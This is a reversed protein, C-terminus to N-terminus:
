LIVGEKLAAEIMEKEEDTCKVDNLHVSKVRTFGSVQGLTVWKFAPYGYQMNYAYADKTMPRRIILFPKRIGMAGANAGLNGSQIVQLKARGANIAAGKFAGFLAGGAGGIAAGGVASSAVSLLSTILATYNGSSLPITVACNGVFQYLTGRANYKQVEVMALCTGTLVDVHYKVKVHSGIVDNAKLPVIGIFPLYLSVNVYPEYDRADNWWEDVAIYGCDVEVYQNSVVKSNVGTGYYGLVIEEPDTTKPTAYLIHFGIIGDMPNIFIKKINEILSPTWLVAGLNKVETLTPNYIHALGSTAVTTLIPITPDPDEGDSADIDPPNPTVPYLDTGPAPNPNPDVDPQTETDPSIDSNEELSSDIDDVVDSMDEESVSGDQAEDQGTSQDAKSNVPYWKRKNPTSTDDNWDSITEVSNDDWSPYDDALTQGSTPYRAGPKLEVGPQPSPTVPTYESGTGEFLWKYATTWEYTRAGYKEKQPNLVTVPPATVSGTLQQYQNNYGPFSAGGSSNYITKGNYTTSNASSLSTPFDPDVLDPPDTPNSYNSSGSSNINRAIMFPKDSFILVGGGNWYGIIAPNGTNPNTVERGIEFSGQSVCCFKQGNESPEIITACKNRGAPYRVSGYGYQDTTAGMQTVWSDNATYQRALGQFHNSIRFSFRQGAIPTVKEPIIYEVDSSSVYIGEELFISKVADIFDESLFTVGDRINEWVTTNEVIDAIYEPDIDSGSIRNYIKTVLEPNTEVIGIGITVGLAAAAGVLATEFAVKALVGKTTVAVQQGTGTSQVVLDTVPKLTTNGIRAGGNQLAARMGNSLQSPTALCNKLQAGGVDFVAEYQLGSFSGLVGNNVPYATSGVIKAGSNKVIQWVADTGVSAWTGSNNIMMRTGLSITELGTLAQFAAALGEVINVSM